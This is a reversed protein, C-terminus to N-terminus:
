DQARLAELRGQLEEWAEPWWEPMGVAKLHGEASELLDLAEVKRGQAARLEALWQQCNGLWERIEDEQQESYLQEARTLCDPLIEEARELQGDLLYARGLAWDAVLKKIPGGTKYHYARAKAYCEIAQPYDHLEWDYTAGLNNWLVALWGDNQAQEAAEIGKHAWLIQEDAPAVIAAHHAADIARLPLGSTLACDYMEIFTALARPRDGSEREFIGRVGLFRTWGAPQEPDALAAAKELWSRGEELAELLSHMRAVQSLAETQCCVDGEKEALEAAQLYVELAQQYQRTRFVADAKQLTEGAEQASVQLSALILAAVISGRLM